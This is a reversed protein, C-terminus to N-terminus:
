LFFFLSPTPPLGKKKRFFTFLCRSNGLTRVLAVRQYGFSWDLQQLSSFDPVVVVAAAAAAAMPVTKRKNTAIESKKKVPGASTPGLPSTVTTHTTPTTPKTTSSPSTTGKGKTVAVKKKGTSPVKESKSSRLPNKGSAVTSAPALAHKTKGASAKTRVGSHETTTTTTDSTFYAM